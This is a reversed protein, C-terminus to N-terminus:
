CHCESALVTGCRPCQACHLIDDRIRQALDPREKLDVIVYLEAEFPTDCNACQV